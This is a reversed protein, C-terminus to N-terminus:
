TNVKALYDYIETDSIGLDNLYEFKYSYIFHKNDFQSYTLFKNMVYEKLIANDLQEKQIQEAFKESLSQLETISDRMSNYETLSITVTGEM